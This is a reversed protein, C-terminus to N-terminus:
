ILYPLAMMGLVLAVHLFAVTAKGATDLARGTRGWFGHAPPRGEAAARAALDDAEGEELIGLRADLEAFGAGADLGVAQPDNERLEWAGGAGAEAQRAREVDHRRILDEPGPGGDPDVNLTFERHVLPHRRQSGGCSVVCGLAIAAAAAVRWWGRMAM